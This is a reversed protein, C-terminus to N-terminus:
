PAVIASYPAGLIVRTAVTDGSWAVGDEVVEWKIVFVGSGAPPVDSAFLLTSQGPDLPPLDLRPGDWVLLGGGADFWHSALHVNANWTFTSTNTVTLLLKVPEGSRVAIGSVTDLKAALKDIPKTYAATAVRAMLRAVDDYDSFDSTLVVVVRPGFPTLLLGADHSVGILDGTKHALAADAPLGTPLRDNIQQRFLTALMEASADPSVIKGTALGAFLREMDRASTTNDESLQEDPPLAANIRTDKLGVSLTTANVNHPDLLRMLAHAPGNDSLTIMREVADRVSLTTGPLTDSPDVSMDDWVVTVTTDDLSIRGATVQRYAEVMVELKYLSASPFVADDNKAYRFNTDVGSVVVAAHGDFEAVAGDLSDRLANWVEVSAWAPRGALGLLTLTLAAVVVARM